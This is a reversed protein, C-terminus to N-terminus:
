DLNTLDGRGAYTVSKVVLPEIDEDEFEDPNQITGDFVVTYMFPGHGMTFEEDVLNWGSLYWDDELLEKGTKGVLQDLEEQTPITETLNEIRIVKLPSILEREKEDYQPDEWDLAFIADAVEDPCEAIARYFIDDQEFAYVYFNETCSSGYNPLGLVQGLTTVADLDVPTEDTGAIGFVAVFEGSETLEVTIQADRSYDEGDKTWKKFKWGEDPKASLVYTEPGELGLYASQSPYEDDFEPEEGEKAYAIQGDGETNVTVTITAEPLETPKFHYTNGNEVALMLGDKGEESLTVIVPEGEEYDAVINGHLTKGEQQLYWGFMGEEIMCGVYWGPHEEDSSPAVYLMNDNEDGFYGQRTWTFSGGCAALSGILLVALLACLIKKLM